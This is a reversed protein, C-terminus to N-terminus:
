GSPLHGALIELERHRFCTTLHDNVLGAAQMFAYCITPGVFQFGRRRLDVSMRESEATKAPIQALSDFRNQITKGGVFGWVYSDFSGFDRQVELFRRANQVSAMIKLRNRIIRSDALLRLIDEDTYAAVRTPDFDSFAARYGERRHLITKWSLGAQAADLLMFEFLKRDDHLPLGWERDHYEIMAPDNGPWSCRQMM